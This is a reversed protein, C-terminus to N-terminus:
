IWCPTPKWLSPRSITTWVSRMGPRSATEKRRFIGHKEFLEVSKSVVLGRAADVDNTACPLGREKAEEAWEKSYNNGNFVVRETNGTSRGCWSVCVPM